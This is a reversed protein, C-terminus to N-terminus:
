LGYLILTSNFAFSTLNTTALNEINIVSVIQSSIGSVNGCVVGNFPHTETGLGTFNYVNGNITLSSFISINNAVLYYGNIFNDYYQTYNSSNMASIDIFQSYFDKLEDTLNASPGAKIIEQVAILDEDDELLFRDGMYYGKDSSLPVTGAVSITFGGEITDTYTQTTVTETSDNSHTIVYNSFIRTENVSRVTFETSDDYNYVDVFPTSEILEVGIGTVYVSINSNKQVTITSQAANISGSRSLAIFFISLAVLLLIVANEIKLIKKNKM